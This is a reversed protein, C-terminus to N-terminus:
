DRFEIETDIFNSYSSMLHDNINVALTHWFCKLSEKGSYSKNDFSDYLYFKFCLRNGKEM